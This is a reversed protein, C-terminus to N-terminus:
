ICFEKSFIPLWSNIICQLFFAHWSVYEKYLSISINMRHEKHKMTLPISKIILPRSLPAVRIRDLKTHSQLTHCDNNLKQCLAKPHM